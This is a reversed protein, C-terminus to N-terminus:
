VEPKKGLMLEYTSIAGEIKETTQKERQAKEDAKVKEWIAVLEPPGNVKFNDLPSAAHRACTTKIWGKHNRGVENDMRGCDECILYSMGEASDVLGHIYEDGGHYYFRLGSFKEKVQDAVVQPCATTGAPPEEYQKTKENYIWKATDIHHQISHCLNDILYLWGNGVDLGWCMCTEKMSKHRDAFIKPYKKCIYEDLLPHM